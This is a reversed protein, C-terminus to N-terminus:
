EKNGYLQTFAKKVQSALEKGKLYVGIEDYIDGVASASLWNLSTIVVNDNDWTLIKAHIQPDEAKIIHFGDECLTDKLEPMDANRMTGSTRGYVVKVTLSPTDNLAAKLPTLIPREGAFSIRHSCVFIDKQAEDSATKALDHHMNSTILQIKVTNDEHLFDSPPNHKKLLTSLIALDRSLDNTLGQDEMALRSAISLANSVVSQNHICVSSEFRNFSSSLWNCSGFTVSWDDESWNTILFKAHSQTPNLHFRFQTALGERNIQKQLSDLKDIIKQYAIFKKSEEPETQGWLVDIQISRRAASLLKLFLDDINKENIFTSHIIIRSFANDITNILHQYHQTGGLILDVESDKINHYPFPRNISKTEYSILEPINKGNIIGLLQFRERQINAAKLIADRLEKSIEPVGQINDERDVVAIAYKVSDSYSKKIIGGDFGNVEENRNAVCHFIDSLEPSYSSDVKLETVSGKYENLLDQARLFHYVKFPQKKQKRELRYCELTIPDILFSRLRSMPESDSPLDEYTAVAMGRSTAQFFYGNENHMIEVWGVQMLPIVIETILQRPLNSVEALMRSTCAQQTIYQLIAHDIAGWKRSKVIKFRHIGYGFKVLVFINEKRM